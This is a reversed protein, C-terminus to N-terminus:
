KDNLIGGYKILIDVFPDNPKKNRLREVEAKLDTIVKYDEQVKENLELVADELMIIKNTLTQNEKLLEKYKM